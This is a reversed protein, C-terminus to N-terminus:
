SSGFFHILSNIMYCFTYNSAQIHHIILIFSSSHIIFITCTHQQSLKPPFLRQTFHSCSDNLSYVVEEPRRPKLRPGWIPVFGSDTSAWFPIISSMNALHKWSVSMRSAFTAINYHLLWNARYCTTRQFGKGTYIHAVSNNTYYCTNIKGCTFILWSDWSNISSDPVTAFVLTLVLERGFFFLIPLLKTHATNIFIKLPWPIM